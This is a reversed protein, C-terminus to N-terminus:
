YTGNNLSFPTIKSKLDIITNQLEEITKNTEKYDEQMQKLLEVINSDEKSVNDYKKCRFLVHRNYSDSRTFKKNCKMCKNHNDDPNNKAINKTYIPPNNENNNLNPTFQHFNNIHNNVETNNSICKNKRNKHREFDNKRTFIKNCIDCIHNVM